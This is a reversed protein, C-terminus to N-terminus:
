SPESIAKKINGAEEHSGLTERLLHFCANLKDLKRSRPNKDYTEFVLGDFVLLSIVIGAAEASFIDYYGNPFTLTVFNDQMVPVLYFGGNICEMLRWQYRGKGALVNMILGASHELENWSLGSHSRIFFDRHVDNVVVSFHPPQLASSQEITLAQLDM